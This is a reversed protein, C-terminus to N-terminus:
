VAIGRPIKALRRDVGAKLAIVEGAHLRKHHPRCTWLVDLPARYDSHHGEVKHKACGKAQCRGPKKVDGRHIAARLASRARVAHPHRRTWDAVAIRNRAQVKPNSRRRRRADRTTKAVKAPDRPKGKKVCCKCSRRLGDKALPHPAFATTRKDRKCVICKKTPTDLDPDRADRRLRAMYALDLEM